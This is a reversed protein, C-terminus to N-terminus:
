NKDQHYKKSQEIIGIKIDDIKVKITEYGLIKYYDKFLM